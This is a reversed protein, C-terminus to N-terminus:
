IILNHVGRSIPQTLKPHTALTIMPIRAESVVPVVALACTSNVPGLIVSVRDKEILRRAQTIAEKADGRDDAVVLEFSHGAMEKIRYAEELALLAGDRMDIGQMELSGSFTGILGIKIPKPPEAATVGRVPIVKEMFRFFDEQPVAGKMLALVGKDRRYGSWYTGDFFLGFERNRMNTEDEPSLTGPTRRPVRERKLNISSIAQEESQFELKFVRVEENRRQLGGGLCSHIGYAEITDLDKLFSPQGIKLKKIESIATSVEIQKLMGEFGSISLKEVQEGWAASFSGFCLFLFLSFTIVLSTYRKTFM